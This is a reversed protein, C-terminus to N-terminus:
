VIINRLDTYIYEGKHNLFCYYYYGTELELGESSPKFVLEVEGNNKRKICAPYKEQEQYEPGAAMDGQLLKQISFYVVDSGKLEEEPITASFILSSAPKGSPESPNDPPSDNPPEDDPSGDPGGNPKNNDQSDSPEQSPKQTPTTPKVVPAYSPKQPSVTPKETKSQTPKEKNETASETKSQTEEKTQNEKTPTESETSLINESNNVTAGVSESCVTNKGESKQATKASNDKTINYVFFSLTFVLVLSAAIPLVKKLFVVSFPTKPPVSMAGSVWSDPIEINKLKEFDFEKM